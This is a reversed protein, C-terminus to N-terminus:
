HTHIHTLCNRSQCVTNCHSGQLLSILCPQQHWQPKVTARPFVICACLAYVYVCEHVCLMCDVGSMLLIRGAVPRHPTWHILYLVYGQLGVEPQSFCKRERHEQPTTQQKRERTEDIFFSYHKIISLFAWGHPEWEAVRTLVCKDYGTREHERERNNVWWSRLLPSFNFLPLLLNNAEKWRVRSFLNQVWFLFMCFIVRLFSAWNERAKVPIGHSDIGRKQGKKKYWGRIRISVADSRLAEELDLCQWSPLRRM